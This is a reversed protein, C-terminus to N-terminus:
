RQHGGTIGFLFDRLSDTLEDTLPGFYRVEADLTEVKQWDHRDNFIVYNNKGSSAIEVKLSKFDEPYDLNESNRIDDDARYMFYEGPPPIDGISANYWRPKVVNSM